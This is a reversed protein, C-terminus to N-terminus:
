AKPKKSAPKTPAAAAAPAVVTRKAVARKPATRKSAVPKAETAAVAPEAVAEQVPAKAAAKAKAPAKAAVKPKAPAKPKAAPKAAAPAPAAEAVVVPAPAPAPTPEPTVVVVPEPAKAVVAPKAETEPVKGTLADLVKQFFSRMEDTETLIEHFAGPVEVLRGHPLRRAAASSAANDVITDLEATLITVPIAVNRLADPKALFATASLGFDLWAWTPGALALQPAADLLAATRAFRVPDHTLRNGEFRRYFPDIDVDPQVYGAGAGILTLARAALRAAPAPTKGLAIGLMPACLVAQEFRGEGMALALLTLCGGMSHGIAYWPKPLRAEFAALVAQFDALFPKFGGTAHGRMPDALLRGSLGQGRWDHALVVFGRDLLDGITEFHKEIPETRGPSFVV